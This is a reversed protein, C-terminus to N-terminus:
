LCRVWATSILNPTSAQNGTCKLDCQDKRRSYEFVWIMTFFCGMLTTMTKNSQAHPIRLFKWYNGSNLLTLVHHYKLFPRRVFSIVFNAVIKLFLSQNEICNTSILWSLISPNTPSQIQIAHRSPPHDSHNTLWLIWNNKESLQHMCQTGRGERWRRCWLDGSTWHGGLIQDSTTGM